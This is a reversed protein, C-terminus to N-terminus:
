RVIDTLGFPAASCHVTLVSNPVAVALYRAVAETARSGRYGMGVPAAAGEPGRLLLVPGM